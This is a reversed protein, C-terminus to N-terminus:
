KPVKGAVGTVVTEIRQYGKTRSVIANFGIILLIAGIGFEALRVMLHQWDNGSSAGGSSGGGSGGASGGSPNLPDRGPLGRLDQIAKQAAEFTPFANFAAAPTFDHGVYGLPALAIANLPNCQRQISQTIVNVYYCGEAHSTGAPGSPALQGWKAPNLINSGPPILVPFLSGVNPGPSKPM